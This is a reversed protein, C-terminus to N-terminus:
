KKAIGRSLAYALTSVTGLIAAVTPSVLSTLGVTTSGIVTLITVWFETTKYGPKIPDISEIM